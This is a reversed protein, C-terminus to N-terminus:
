ILDCAYAMRWRERKIGRGEVRQGKGEVRWWKTDEENRMGVESNRFGSVQFREDGCRM